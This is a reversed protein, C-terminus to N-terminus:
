SSPTPETKTILGIVPQDAAVTSGASLAAAAALTLISCGKLTKARM